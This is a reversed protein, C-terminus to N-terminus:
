EKGLQGLSCQDSHRRRQDLAALVVEMVQETPGTEDQAVIAVDPDAWQDRIVMAPLAM